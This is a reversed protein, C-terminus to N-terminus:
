VAFGSIDNRWKFCKLSEGNGLSLNSNKMMPSLTMGFPVPIFYVRSPLYKCGKEGALGGVARWVGTAEM